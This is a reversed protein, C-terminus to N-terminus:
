RFYVEETIKEHSYGAFESQSVLRWAELKLDFRRDNPYVRNWRFVVLKEIKEEYPAIPLNEVFCWDDAKAIGLPNEDVTLNADTDAFLQATYANVTLKGDCLALIRENLVRDRSQRRCNFMMGDRDDLTVILKVDRRREKPHERRSIM